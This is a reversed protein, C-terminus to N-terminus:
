RARRGGRGHSCAGARYLLIQGVGGRGRGGGGAQQPVRGRHGACASLSAARGLQRKAAPTHQPAPPQRQPAPPQRPRFAHQMHPGAVLRRVGAQAHRGGEEGGCGPWHGRAAAHAPVAPWGAPVPCRCSPALPAVARPPAIPPAPAPGCVLRRSTQCPLRMASGWQQEPRRCSYRAGWKGGFQAAWCHLHEQRVPLLRWHCHFHQAAGLGTLRQAEALRRQLAQVALCREHRRQAVGVAAGQQAHAGHRRGDHRTPPQLQAPATQRAICGTQARVCATRGGGGGGSNQSRPDSVSTSCCAAQSVFAAASSVHARRRAMTRAAAPARMSAQKPRRSAQM